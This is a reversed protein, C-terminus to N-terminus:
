IGDMYAVSKPYRVEVAGSRMHCPITFEMGKPQPAFQEFEQSIILGENQDSKEYGLMRTAGAAGATDLRNWFVIERLGQPALLKMIYNLITDDTFGPARMTTALVGYAITPLALTNMEHVGLTTNHINTWLAQVDGVIASVTAATIGAGAQAAHIQAAWSGTVDGGNATNPSVKTTSLIGFGNALGLMPTLGSNDGTAALDELLSEMAWRAAEAKKAELPVGAMAAARMDQISFKYSCGLSVIKQQFENAVADANPFDDSYNHVIKAQGKKEYSRYTFSEAGSPVRTDVPVLSRAKLQPYLIDYTQTYIYELQRAFMMTQSADHRLATKGKWAGYISDHRPYFGPLPMSPDQGLMWLCRQAQGVVDLSGDARALGKFPNDLTVSVLTM